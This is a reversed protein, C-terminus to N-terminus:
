NRVVIKEKRVIRNNFTIKMLHPLGKKKKKKKCMNINTFSNEAYPNGM